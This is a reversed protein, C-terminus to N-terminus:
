RSVEQNVRALIYRQNETIITTCGNLLDKMSLWQMSENTNMGSEYIIYDIDNENLLACTQKFQPKEIFLRNDSYDRPVFINFLASPEHLDM